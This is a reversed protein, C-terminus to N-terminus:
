YNTYKLFVKIVSMHMNDCINSQGFLFYNELIGDAFSRLSLLGGLFRSEDEAKAFSHVRQGADQLRDFLVASGDAVQFSAGVVLFVVLQIGEDFNFHRADAEQLQDLRQTLGVRQVMDGQNSFVVDGGLVRPERSVGAFQVVAVMQHGLVLGVKVHVMGAEGVLFVPSSALFDGFNSESVFLLDGWSSLELVLRFKKQQELPSGTGYM